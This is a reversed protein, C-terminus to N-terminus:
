EKRNNPMVYVIRRLINLVRSNISKRLMLFFWYSFTKKKINALYEHLVLDYSRLIRRNKPHIIEGIEKNPINAFPHSSDTTHTATEGFGINSVLNVNSNITIGNHYFNAYCWQYDWTNVQGERVWKFNRKWFQVIENNKFMRKIKLFVLGDDISSMNYDYKQWARRWTAWGWILCIRSFHYSEDNKSNIDGFNSGGIHMMRSDDRYKLLLEECYLYFSDSPLCDDELIIGEEVNTFFWTIAESVARGCGLNESRFLTTVECEWDVNKVILKVRECKELEGLKDKRPGDAAIFLRKPKVRRISEFVLETTEPRNFVLFLIPTNM